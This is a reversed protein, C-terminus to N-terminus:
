KWYEIQPRLDPETSIGCATMFEMDSKSFEALRTVQRRQPATAGAGIVPLMKMEAPLVSEILAILNQVNTDVAQNVIQFFAAWQGHNISEADPQGTAHLLYVMLKRKVPWSIQAQMGAATLTNVLAMWERRIPKLEEETPIETPLGV